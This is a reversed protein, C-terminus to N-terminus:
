ISKGDRGKMVDYIQPMVSSHKSAYSKSDSTKLLKYYYEKQKRNFWLYCSTEHYIYRIIRKFFHTNKKHSPPIDKPGQNQCGFPEGFQTHASFIKLVVFHPVM